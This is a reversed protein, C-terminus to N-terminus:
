LKGNANHHLTPEIVMWEAHREFKFFRLFDFFSIRLIHSAEEGVWRSIEHRLMQLRHAELQAIFGDESHCKKLSYATADKQFLSVSPWEIDPRLASLFLLFLSTPKLVIIEYDNKQM